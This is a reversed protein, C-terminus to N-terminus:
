SHIFIHMFILQCSFIIFNNYLPDSYFTNCCYCNHCYKIWSRCTVGGWFFTILITSVRSIFNLNDKYYMKTSMWNSGSNGNETLWEKTYNDPKIEERSIQAWGWIYITDKLIWSLRSVKLNIFFFILIFYPQVVSVKKIKIKQKALAFVVKNILRAPNFILVYEIWLLSIVTWSYSTLIM